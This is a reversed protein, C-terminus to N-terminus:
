TLHSPDFGALARLAAPNAILGREWYFPWSPSFLSLVMAVAVVAAWETPQNM